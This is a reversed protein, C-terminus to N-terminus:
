TPRSIRANNKILILVGLIIMPICLLQGQTLFVLYYFTMEMFMIQCELFEALSRTLGYGILFYASHRGYSKQDKSILNLFIFLAIGELAAEYLQSPHRVIGEPDSPFIM